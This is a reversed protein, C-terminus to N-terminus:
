LVNKLDRPPCFAIKLIVSRINYKKKYILLNFIHQLLFNRKNGHVKKGLARWEYM